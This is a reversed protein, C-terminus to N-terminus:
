QHLASQEQYVSLVSESIRRDPSQVHRYRDAKRYCTGTGNFDAMAM